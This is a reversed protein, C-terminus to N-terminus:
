TLFQDLQILEIVEQEAELIDKETNYGWRAFFLQVTMLGQNNIVNLLAPLRDEVFCLTEKPHKEVLDLLVAEKSMKRDLGFVRDSPIKIQHADLIYSVFREQKTTVIYWVGQNTLNKLKEAVGSFLPNMKVWGDLDDSIWRDRTEGFL